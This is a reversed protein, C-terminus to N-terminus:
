EYDDEEEYDYDHLGNANCYEEVNEEFDRQYSDLACKSQEFEFMLLMAVARNFDYRGDKNPETYLLANEFANPGYPFFSTFGSRSGFNEKTFKFFHEFDWPEFRDWLEKLLEPNEIELDFEISDNEYNYYHPSILKANSVTFNGFREVFWDESFIENMTTIFELCLASKFDANYEELVENYIDGLNTGYLGPQLINLWNTTMELKM